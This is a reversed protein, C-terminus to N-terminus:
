PFRHIHGGDADTVWERDRVPVHQLTVTYEPSSPSASFSVEEFASLPAGTRALVARIAREPGAADIADFGLGDDSTADSTGLGTTRGSDDLGWTREEGHARDEVILTADDPKFVMDQVVAGAPSGKRVDALIRRVSATKAAGLGSKRAAATREQDALRSHTAAMVGGGAALAVVIFGILVARDPM